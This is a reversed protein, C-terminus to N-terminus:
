LNTSIAVKHCQTPQLTVRLMASLKKKAFKFAILVVSKAVDM